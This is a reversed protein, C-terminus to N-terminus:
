GNHYSYHTAIANIAIESMHENLYIEPYEYRIANHIDTLYYEDICYYGVNKRIYALLKLEESNWEVINGSANIYTKM